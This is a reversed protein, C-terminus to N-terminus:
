VADYLWKEVEGTTASWKFLNNVRSSVGGAGKYGHAKQNEIWNPNLLM